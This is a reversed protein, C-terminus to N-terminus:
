ARWRATLVALGGPLRGGGGFRRSQGPRTQDEEAWGVRLVRRLEALKPIGFVPRLLMDSEQQFLAERLRDTEIMDTTPSAWEGVNDLLCVTDFVRGASQAFKHLRSPPPIQRWERRDQGAREFFREYRYMMWLSKEPGTVAMLVFFNTSTVEGARSTQTTAYNTMYVEGLSVLYKPPTDDPTATRRKDTYCELINLEKVKSKSWGFQRFPLLPENPDAGIATSLRGGVKLFYRVNSRRARDTCLPFEFSVSGELYKKLCLMDEDSSCDMRKLFDLFRWPLQDIGDEEQQSDGDQSEQDAAMRARKRSHGEASGESEPSLLRKNQASM